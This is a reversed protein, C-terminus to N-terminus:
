IRDVVTKGIEKRAAQLARRKEKDSENKGSLLGMAHYQYSVKSANYQISSKKNSSRASDGDPKKVEVGVHNDKETRNTGVIV